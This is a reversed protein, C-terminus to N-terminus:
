TVTFPETKYPASRDNTASKFTLPVPVAPPNRCTSPVHCAGPRHSDSQRLHFTIEVRLTPTSSRSQGLESCLGNQRARLVPVGVECDAGLGPVKKIATELCFYREGIAKRGLLSPAPVPYETRCSLDKCVKRQMLVFRECLRQPKNTMQKDEAEM